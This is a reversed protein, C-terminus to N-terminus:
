GQYHHHYSLCQQQLLGVLQAVGVVAALRGEWGLEWVHGLLVVVAVLAWVLAGVASLGLGPVSLVRGLRPERKMTMTQQRLRDQPATVRGSM